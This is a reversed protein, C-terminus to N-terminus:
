RRRQWCSASRRYSCSFRGDSSYSLSDRTAVHEGVAGADGGDALARRGLLRPRGLGPRGLGRPGGCYLLLSCCPYWVFCGRGGCTNSLRRGSKPKESRLRRAHLYSFVRGFYLREESGNAVPPAGGRLNGVGVAPELPAAAETPAERTAGDDANHKGTSENASGKDAVEEDAEEEEKARAEPHSASPQNSDHVPRDWSTEGSETNWYYIDGSGPDLCQEWGALLAGETQAQGPEAASEKGPAVDGTGATSPSSLADIEKLFASVGADAHPARAGGEDASADDSDSDSGYAGLGLGDLANDSDASEQAAAAAANTRKVIRISGPSLQLRPRRQSAGDTASRKKGM